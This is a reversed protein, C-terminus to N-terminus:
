VYYILKCGFFNGYRRQVYYVFFFDLMILLFKKYMDVVLVFVFKM